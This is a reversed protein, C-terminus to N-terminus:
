LPMPDTQTNQIKTKPYIITVIGNKTLNLPESFNASYFKASAVVHGLCLDRPFDAGRDGYVIRKTSKKPVMRSYQILLIVSARNGQLCQHM